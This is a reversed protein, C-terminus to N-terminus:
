VSAANAMVLHRDIDLFASLQSIRARDVSGGRYGRMRHQLYQRYFKPCNRFLALSDKFRGIAGSSEQRPSQVRQKWFSPFEHLGIGKIKQALKPDGCAVQELIWNCIAVRRDPWTAQGPHPNSTAQSEHIRWTALREPTYVTDYYFGALGEWAMDGASGFQNPFKGIRDFAEKPFLAQTVSTIVTGFLLVMAGDFPATRYHSTEFQKSFTAYWEANRPWQRAREIVAGDDDILNLGCQAICPKSQGVAMGVLIELCRPEMTDDATAIYVYEGVALNLSNNWNAYMGTRPARSIRLRPETAARVQLTEWTGDDSFNDVAILEWNKYTQSFITELRKDLYRGANLVPLCISVLPQTAIKRFPVKNESDFM